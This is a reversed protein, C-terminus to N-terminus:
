KAKVSGIGHNSIQKSKPNGKYIVNGVGRADIVIENAAYVEVNGVGQASVKVKDVKFDSTIM